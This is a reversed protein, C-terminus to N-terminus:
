GTVPALFWARVAALHGKGTRHPSHWSPIFGGIIYAGAITLASVLARKPDPKVRGSEFRMMVDVWADPRARLADVIPKSEDETVGYSRFM